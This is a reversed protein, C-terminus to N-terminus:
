WPVSPRRVGRTRLCHAAGSGWGGRLVWTSARETRGQFCLYRLHAPALRAWTTGIEKGEWATGTFSPRVNRDGKVYVQYPSAMLRKNVDAVLVRKAAASATNLAGACSMLVTEGLLSATSAAVLLMARGEYPQTSQVQRIAEPARVPSDGALTLMTALRAVRADPRTLVRPMDDTCEALEISIDVIPFLASPRDFDQSWSEALERPRQMGFFAKAPDGCHARGRGLARVTESAEMAIVLNNAPTTYPEVVTENDLNQTDLPRLVGGHVPKNDPRREMERATSRYDGLKGGLAGAVVLQSEPVVLKAHICVVSRTIGSLKMSTLTGRLSEKIRNSEKLAVSVNASPKESVRESHRILSSLSETIAPFPSTIVSPTAHYYSETWGIRTQASHEPECHGYTCAYLTCTTLDDKSRAIGIRLDSGNERWACLLPTEDASQVVTTRLAVASRVANEASLQRLIQNSLLDQEIVQSRVTADAAKQAASKSSALLMLLVHAHQSKLAADWYVLTMASDTMMGCGSGSGRKRKQCLVMRVEDEAQDGRIVLATSAGRAGRRSMEQQAFSSPPRGPPRAALVVARDAGSGGDDEEGEIAGGDANYLASVVCGMRDDCESEDSNLEVHMMTEIATDIRAMQEAREVRNKGYEGRGVCAREETAIQLDTLRARRTIETRGYALFTSAVAADMDTVNRKQVIRRGAPEGQLYALLALSAWISDGASADRVVRKCISTLADGAPRRICTSILGEVLEASAIERMTALLSSAVMRTPLAHSPTRSSAAVVFPTDTANHFVQLANLAHSSRPDSLKHSSKMGVCGLTTAIAVCQAAWAACVPQVNIRTTQQSSGMKAGAVKLSKQYVLSVRVSSYRIGIRILETIRPSHGQLFAVHQQDRFFSDVSKSHISIMHRWAASSSSTMNSSQQPGHHRQRRSTYPTLGNKQLAEELTQVILVVKDRNSPLPPRAARSARASTAVVVDSRWAGDSGSGHGHLTSRWAEDAGSMKCTKHRVGGFTRM